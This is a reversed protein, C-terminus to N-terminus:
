AVKLTAHEEAQKHKLKDFQSCFGSVACFKCRKSEGPRIEVWAGSTQSALSEAEVANDFVRLARIRNPKMVAYTTETCWREKETCEPLQDDSVALAAKHMALRKRVFVETEEMTWLPVQVTIVPAQPYQDNREAQAASWDRLILVIELNNVQLDNKQCLYALVNLQEIWERKPADSVAYVTTVKYDSLCGREWRDYQGSVTWGDIEVSLRQEVRVDAEDYSTTSALIQHISQGLLTWLRDKADETLESSHRRELVVRRPSDILRTVSIHNNQQDIPQRAYNAM